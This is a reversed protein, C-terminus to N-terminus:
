YRTINKHFDYTISKLSGCFHHVSAAFRCPQIAAWSRPRYNADIFGKIYGSGSGDCAWPVRVRAGGLPISYVQQELQSWKILFVFPFWLVHLEDRGELFCLSWGHSAPLTQRDVRRRMMDQSLSDLLCITRSGFRHTGALFGRILSCFLCRWRCM